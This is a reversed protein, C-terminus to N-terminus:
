ADFETGHAYITFLITGGTSTDETTGELVAGALILLSGGVVSKDAFGVTNSYTFLTLVNSLTPTALAVRVQGAVTAATIRNVNVSGSDIFAKRGSPVTYTFRTTNSHPGVTNYYGNSTTVPNRDWYMPRAVAFSGVRM